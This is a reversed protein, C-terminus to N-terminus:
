TDELASITSAVEQKGAGILRSILKISRHTLINQNGGLGQSKNFYDSGNLRQHDLLAVQCRGDWFRRIGM